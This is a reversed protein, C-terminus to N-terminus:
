TCYDYFNHIAVLGIVCVNSLTYSEHFKKLLKENKWIKNLNSNTKIHKSVELANSFTSSLQYCYKIIWRFLEVTLPQQQTFGFNKKLLFSDAREFLDWYLQLNPHIFLSADRSLELSSFMIYLPFFLFSLFFIWLYLSAKRKICPIKKSSSNNNKHEYKKDHSIWKLISLPLSSLFFFIGLLREVWVEDASSRKRWPKISRRLGNTTNSYCNRTYNKEEATRRMRM